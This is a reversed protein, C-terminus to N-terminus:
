LRAGKQAFVFCFAEDVWGLDAGAAAGPLRAGLGMNRFIIKCLGIMCGLM